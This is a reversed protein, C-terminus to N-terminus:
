AGNEARSEFPDGLNWGADEYRPLISRMTDLEDRRPGGEEFEKGTEKGIVRTLADVFTARDVGVNAMIAPKSRAYRRQLVLEAPRTLRAAEELNADLLLTGHCFTREKSVYAAMGSVKGAASVIRNGSLEFRQGSGCRELATIVLSGAVRFVERADWVYRIRNSALDRGVSLSWNLNGPGHYVAGGGTFRRVVPIGERSCVELDTEFRAIQARGIIISKENTWVRLTLADRQNNLFISEELALNAYPNDAGDTIIRCLHLNGTGDEHVVGPSLLTDGCAEHLKFVSAM